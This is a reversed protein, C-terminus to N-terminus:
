LTLDQKDSESKYQCSLCSVSLENPHPWVSRLILDGIPGFVNLERLIPPVFGMKNWGEKGRCVEHFM